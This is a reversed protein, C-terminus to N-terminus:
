AYTDSVKGSRVERAGMEASQRYLAVAERHKKLERAVNGGWYAMEVDSKFANAYSIYASLLSATPKTEESKNWDLVLKRFRKEDCLEAVLAASTVFPVRRGAFDIEFIGEFRPAVGMLHQTLRGRPIQLLNGVLPLRPPLPIRSPARPSVASVM